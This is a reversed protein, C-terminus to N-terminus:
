FRILLWFLSILIINRLFEGGIWDWVFRKWPDDSTVNRNTVADFLYREKARLLKVHDVVCQAERPLGSSSALTGLLAEHIESCSGIGNSSISASGPRGNMLRKVDKAHPTGEDPSGPIASEERVYNRLIRLKEAITEAAHFSEPLPSTIEDIAEVTVSVPTKPDLAKEISAEINVKDPGFVSVDSLSDEIIIPALM